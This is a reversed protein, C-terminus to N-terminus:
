VLLLWLWGHWTLALDVADDKVGVGLIAVLDSRVQLVSWVGVRFERPLM